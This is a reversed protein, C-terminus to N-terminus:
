IEDDEFPFDTSDTLEEVRKRAKAKREEPIDDDGVDRIVTIGNNKLITNIATCLGRDLMEEENLADTLRDVFQEQLACLKDELIQKRTKGVDKKAKKFKRLSQLNGM